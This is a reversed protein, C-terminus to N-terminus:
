ISIEFLNIYDIDKNNQNYSNSIECYINKDSMMNGM